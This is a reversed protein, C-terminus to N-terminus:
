AKEMVNVVVAKPQLLEHSNPAQEQLVVGFSRGEDEACCASQLAEQCLGAKNEEMCRHAEVIENLQFTKGIQVPLVGRAIQELLEDLPIRVFDHAILKRAPILETVRFNYYGMWAAGSLWVVVVPAIVRPTILGSWSMREARM